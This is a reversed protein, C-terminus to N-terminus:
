DAQRSDRDRRRKGLQATVALVFLGALLSVLFLNSMSAGATQVGIRVPPSIPQNQPTALYLQLDTREKDSPLDATMQLTLSGRAPIRFNPPTNLLAGDPGRYLITADVPLPLGNQAVILLPSSASTRTYVNGPPILAISSRLQSLTDRDGNLRERTLKEAEAYGKYARRQTVTLATLLDSRLPLTYGYRTLAITGDNALLATLDNIFRAQQASNLVETDTFEAPDSEPAGLKDVDGQEGQGPARVYDTLAMPAATRDTLSATVAEMVARATSPEWSAPPNVLTPDLEPQDGERYSAASQAATRVATAATLDRAAQSDLTFDFRLNEDSYGPTEPLPGTAALTSALAENFTVADVGPSLSVKRSYTGVTNGAVLVRVTEGPAPATIEGAAPLAPNDLNSRQEGEIRGGPADATRARAAQDREWESQMGAAPLTSRSLDAWGMGPAAAPILYGAGPVVVNRLVPTRLVRELTFPGRELSERMLWTDGTRAVANLDANAWPLAVTCNDNAAARLKTLWAKAHDSGTGPESGASTDDSGWSDRLRKRNLGPAPRDEDVTYGEGMREVTDLLAPDVALCTAARAGNDQMAETYTDVLADLRGGPALQDALNESSLILPPRNPAEGTEGPVIDVRASIPFLVSMGAPTLSPAPETGTTTMHWRETDLRMGDQALVLMMPLTTTAPHRDTAITITVDTEEGQELAPVDVEGGAPRYESIAAVTAARADAVSGSAPGQLPAITLGSAETESENRIRVTVSVPTGSPTSPPADILSLTLGQKGDDPRITPNIWEHAVAPDHPNLPVPEVATTAPVGTGLPACALAAAALVAAAQHTRRATM